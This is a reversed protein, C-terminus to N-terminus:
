PLEKVEAKRIMVKSGPDHHQFAFYGPKPFASSHDIFEYLLEGNVWVKFHPLVKGRYDKVVVEVEQTFWTEPPSLQKFIHVMTYISGTRIPDRHTSDIQIEYGDTFTGKIGPCHVYMGSNGGDSIKIEARFRFNKYPQKAYFLMSAKGSGTLAGNEVKWESSGKEALDRMEWGDLSKGDFLAVYGGAKKEQARAPGSAGGFAVAMAACAAGLMWRRM